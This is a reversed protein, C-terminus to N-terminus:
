VLGAYDARAILEETQKELTWLHGSAQQKTDCKRNLLSTTIASWQGDDHKVARGLYRGDRFVYFTAGGDNHYTFKAKRTRQNM